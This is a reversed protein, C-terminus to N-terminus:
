LCRSLAGRGPCRLEAYGPSPNLRMQVCDSPLFSKRTLLPGTECERYVIKQKSESQKFFEDCSSLPVTPHTFRRKEHKLFGSISSAKLYCDKIIM